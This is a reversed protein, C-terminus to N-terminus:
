YKKNVDCVMKKFGIKLGHTNISKGFIDIYRNISYENISNFQYFILYLFNHM